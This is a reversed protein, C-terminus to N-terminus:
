IHIHVHIHGQTYPIAFIPISRTAPPHTHQPRLFPSHCPTDTKNTHPLPRQTQGGYRPTTRGWGDRATCQKRRSSPCRYPVYACTHFSLSLCHDIVSIPYSPRQADETQRESGVLSERRGCMFVCVCVCLNLGRKRMSTPVFFTSLMSVYICGSVKGEDIYPRLVSFARDM